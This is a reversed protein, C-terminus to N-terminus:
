KEKGREQGIELNELIEKQTNLRTLLTDIFREHDKYHEKFQMLAGQVFGNLFLAYDVSESADLLIKM